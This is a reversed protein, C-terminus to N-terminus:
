ANVKSRYKQDQVSIVIARNLKRPNRTKAGKTCRANPTVPPRGTNAGGAGGHPHDVPNKAVGRVNSSFGLWRSHGAKGSVTARHNINAAVGLLCTASNDLLRQEGSRLLLVTQSNKTSSNAALVQAYTGAATCLVYDCKAHQQAVSSVLTGAPVAALTTSREASATSRIWDSHAVPLYVVTNNIYRVLSFFATRKSIHEVRTSSFRALLFENYTTYNKFFCRYFGSRGRVTRRGYCNRGGSNVLRITLGRFSGGRHIGLSSIVSRFRYSPTTPKYTKVSGIKQM